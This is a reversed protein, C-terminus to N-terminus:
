VSSSVYTLVPSKITSRGTIRVVTRQAFAIISSLEINCRLCAVESPQEPPHPFKLPYGNAADNLDWCKDDVALPIELDIAEDGM